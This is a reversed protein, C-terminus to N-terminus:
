RPLWTTSDCKQGDIYTRYVGAFFYCQAGLISHKLSGIRRTALTFYSEAQQLEKPTTPADTIWMANSVSDLGGPSPAVNVTSDFPKAITGLASALLVLCSWGDWGLGQGAITRARKVLQEVDLVPNKTHVNELFKDVLLPIHEENVPMLGGAPTVHDITPGTNYSTGDEVRSFLVGILAMPPYKGEFVEWNLVTDATTRHAPIQLFDKSPEAM